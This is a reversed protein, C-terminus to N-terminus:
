RIDKWEKSVSRDFFLVSLSDVTWIFLTYLYGQARFRRPSEIVVLSHIYSIRGLKTLRTYLEFDEGSILHSHYGGVSRFAQRKIIQCEGRCMGMGIANLMRVYQNHLTYFVRDHWIKEEPFVDVRCALAPSSSTQLEGKGWSVVYSLFQDPQTIVTDGNLFILIEGNAVEEGSNRGQAIGQKGKGKFIVISDAYPEAIEVTRDTSGGDSVIVELSFKQKLEPTFVSLCRELIKEEQFTPIIISIFPSHSHDNEHLLKDM